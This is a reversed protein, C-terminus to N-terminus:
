PLDQPARDDVKALSNQWLGHVFRSVLPALSADRTFKRWRDSAAIKTEGIPEATKTLYRKARYQTVKRGSAVFGCNLERSDSLAHAILRLAAAPSPEAPREAFNRPREFPSRTM